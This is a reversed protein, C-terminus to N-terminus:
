FRGSLRNPFARAQKTAPTEEPTDEAVTVLTQLANAVGADRPNAYGYVHAIARKNADELKLRKTKL